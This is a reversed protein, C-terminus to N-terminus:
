KEVANIQVIVTKFLDIVEPPMLTSIENISSNMVLNLLPADTLGPMYQNLLEIALNNKLIEGVTSVMSYKKLELEIDTDYEYHYRGSGLEIEEEKGPFCIIATTNAPVEIDLRFLNNSCNWNSVLLGYPTEISADVWTIGPIPMPAIRSKKYGPQAIQIGALRKYMWDGISGYAYHNFSNMGTEDFSGDKKMSDWREWITTAGLDVAYLWSPLDRKLFIKGALAHQGNETLTHCLYPTGVFGTTLHNNHKSINNTLSTLIRDRDEQKALDFYLALVCATQTECVMRGTQTIYEKQFAEVILQHLASYKEADEAYGLLEASWAVIQTSYAFYASAVLYVDTGGGNGSGEEKDLALWDGYQYGSQWLNNEGAKSHIYEVWGKMSPYQEQLIRTDGYTLYMTWPIVTAADGWAATGELTSLLNPVVRPVGLEPTQEAALDRLWKTFFLAVNMNYAATSAFVQADGTWGLREDRQPCDTPIDLFNGRQGWQINSQLQTIGKHSCSFTGTIQMDTHLVCATFNDPELADDLGEIKLYRFGHFTFAPLFIDNSGSCLFTDTAKASRLNATYFNGHQDLVEAHQLTITTGKPYKLKAEVVGVLNQGFDLVTEGKPTTIVKQPRLRKTIRVPECEQAVLLNTPHRLVVAENLDEPVFTYDITEGHYIESYRRPGTTYNWSEDTLIVQRAGDELEIELQAIVATRDGYNTNRNDFGFDGKYWGNGVTIEIQNESQLLHTVDYTQYQIRKNYCTWGPALFIDGIKDGNLSAQYVGLASAYLRAQKVKAPLLFKKIFVPCAEVDDEYEHTIWCAKMNEASMLGTEFWTNSIAICGYNDTVSVVMQYRTKPLIPKGEYKVLHSQDSQIVGTEWVTGESTLVQISYSEQVIDAKDSCLHWSFRPELIDIGFPQSQYEVTLNKLQLDM